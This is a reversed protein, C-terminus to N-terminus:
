VDLVLRKSKARSVCTMIKEGSQKEKDNLYVDQHFPEGELVTVMCTGCAGQECSSPMEVGNARLVDLITEGANVTLTLNSRALSIEFSSSDDIVTDNAFYEFHVADDPWGNEKAINRAATLMPGPGCVYIQKNKEYAGIVANLMKSTAEPDLGLHQQHKVGAQALRQDFAVHETSRAFHHLDYNLGQHHLAQAMACIPTVGIGGAILITHEADRRLPFNNRPASIALLDGERVVDHMCESGGRSEPERKVGIFYSASEGPGNVLSYQRVVGNPMRVDIHAGPQATPLTGELAVLEFAMVDDCEAWKRKVSVRLATTAGSSEAPKTSSSQPRPQFQVVSSAVQMPPTLPAGLESEIRARAESLLWNHQRLITKREQQSKASNVLGRVVCRGDTVPQVFLMLVASDGNHRSFFRLSRQDAEVLEVESDAVDDISVPAFRYDKLKELVTEAPVNIPIPRLTLLEGEKLWPLDIDDKLDAPASWILGYREISPYTKINVTRAPADAPHAPIYTCGGTRNSYRWGHYQCKLERGDNIGISLRVGRHLCRNEWLNVHGDDARWLAFEHGLLQAQYVHRLPLDTSSAVPYWCLDPAGAMTQTQM